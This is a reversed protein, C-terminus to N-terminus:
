PGETAGACINGKNLIASSEQITTYQWPLWTFDAFTQRRLTYLLNLKLSSYLPHAKWNLYLCLMLNNSTFFCVCASYCHIGKKKRRKTLDEKEKLFPQFYIKENRGYKISNCPSLRASVINCQMSRKYGFCISTELGKYKKL